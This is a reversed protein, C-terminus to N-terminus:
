LALEMFEEKMIRTTKSANEYVFAEIFVHLITNRIPRRDRRFTNM